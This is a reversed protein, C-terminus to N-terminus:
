RRLDCDGTTKLRDRDGRDYWHHVSTELPGSPGRSFENLNLVVKVDCYTCAVASLMSLRSSAEFGLWTQRSPSSKAEEAQEQMTACGVDVIVLRTIATPVEKRM